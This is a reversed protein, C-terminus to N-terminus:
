RVSSGWKHLLHGTLESLGLIGRVILQATVTANWTM